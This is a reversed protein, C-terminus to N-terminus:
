REGEKSNDTNDHQTAETEIFFKKDSNTEWGQGRAGFGELM